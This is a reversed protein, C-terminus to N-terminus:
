GGQSQGAAVLSLVDGPQPLDRGGHLPIGLSDVQPDLGERPHLQVGGIGDARQVVRGPLFAPLVKLLETAGRRSPASSGTSRRGLPEPINAQARPQTLAW